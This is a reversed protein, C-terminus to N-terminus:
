SWVVSFLGMNSEAATYNETTVVPFVSSFLKTETALVNSGFTVRHETAM